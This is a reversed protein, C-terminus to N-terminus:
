CPGFHLTTLLVLIIHNRIALIVVLALYGIVAAFLSMLVNPFFMGKAYSIHHVNEAISDFDDIPFM